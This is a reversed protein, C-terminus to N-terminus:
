SSGGIGRAVVVGVASGVLAGPVGTGVALGWETFGVKPFRTAPLAGDPVGDEGLMLEVLDGLVGDPVGAPWPACALWGVSCCWFTLDDTRGRM